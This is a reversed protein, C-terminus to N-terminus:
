AVQLIWLSSFSIENPLCLVFKWTQAHLRFFPVSRRPFILLEFHVSYSSGFWGSIMQSIILTLVNLTSKLVFLKGFSLIRVYIQYVFHKRRTSILCSNFAKSKVATSIFTINYPLHFICVKKKNSFLISAIYQTRPFEWFPWDLTFWDIWAFSSLIWKFSSESLILSSNFNPAARTEMEFQGGWTNIAKLDKEKPRNQMCKGYIANNM